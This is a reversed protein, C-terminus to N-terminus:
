NSARWLKPIYIFICGLLIYFLYESYGYSNFIGNFYTISYGATRDTPYKYVQEYYSTVPWFKDKDTLSTFLYKYEANKSFLSTTETITGKISAVNVFLAFSHFLIWIILFRKQALTLKM